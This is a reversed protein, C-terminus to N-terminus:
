SRSNRDNQWQQYAEKHDAALDAADQLRTSSTPESRVGQNEAYQLDFELAKEEPSANEDFPIDNWKM